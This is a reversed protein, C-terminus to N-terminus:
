RMSVFGARIFPLYISTKGTDHVIIFSWIDDVNKLIYERVIAADKKVNNECLRQSSRPTHYLGACAIIDLYANRLLAKNVQSFFPAFFTLHREKTPDLDVGNVLKQILKSITVGTRITSPSVKDVVSYKVPNVIAPCIFRLFLISGMVQLGVEQSTRREVMTYVTHLIDMISSPLETLFKLVNKLLQQALRLVIRANGEVDADPDRTSDVELGSPYSAIANITPLLIQTLRDRCLISLYMSMVVTAPSDTRFLTEVSSFDKLEEAILNETLSLVPRQGVSSLVRILSEITRDHDIDRLLCVKLIAKTLVFPEELLLNKLDLTLKEDIEGKKKSKRKKKKDEKTEESVKRTVTASSFKEASCEICPSFEAADSELLINSEEPTVLLIVTQHVGYQALYQIYAAESDLLVMEGNSNKYKVVPDIGYFDFLHDQLMQFTSNKPLTFVDISQRSESLFCYCKFAIRDDLLTGSSGERTNWYDLQRPEELNPSSSILDPPSEYQAEGRQEKLFLLASEQNEKIESIWTLVSKRLKRNRVGLNSLKSPSLNLFQKGDIKNDNLQKAVSEFGKQHVTIALKTADWEEVPSDDSALLSIDKQIAIFHTVKGTRKKPNAHIPIMLFNNIFPTGDRRYNLIEVELEHGEDVAKRIKRVMDKDTFQGQLFRCNRGLISEKPYLTMKEFLDNAYVIPCDPFTADTVLMSEQVSELWPYEKLSKKRLKEFYASGLKQSTADATLMSNQLSFEIVQPLVANSQQNGM